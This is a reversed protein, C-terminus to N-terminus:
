SKAVADMLGTEDKQPRIAINSYSEGNVQITVTVNRTSPQRESSKYQESGATTM